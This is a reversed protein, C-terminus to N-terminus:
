LLFPLIVAMISIFSVLILLFFASDSLTFFFFAFFVLLYHAHTSPVTQAASWADCMQVSSYLILRIVQVGSLHM